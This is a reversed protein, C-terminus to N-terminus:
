REVATVPGGKPGTVEISHGERWGRRTKLWFIAAAVSQPGNGTAKDYLSQAVRSDLEDAGHDLQARYYKYLTPRTIGM